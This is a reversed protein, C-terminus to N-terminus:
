PETIPPLKARIANVFALLDGTHNELIDRAIKVDVVAYGHVVINRFGIANRMSSALSADIWGAKALLDFLEQNTAPEGLLDDSVIHSAVDQCAQIAIQLSYLVFRRERVDTEMLDARALRHLESVYTEILVLKKAVLGEDTM